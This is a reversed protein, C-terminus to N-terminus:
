GITCTAQLNETEVLITFLDLSDLFVPSILKVIWM